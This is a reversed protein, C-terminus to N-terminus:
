GLCKVINVSKMGVVVVSGCHILFTLHSSIQAVYTYLSLHLTQVYCLRGGERRASYEQVGGM